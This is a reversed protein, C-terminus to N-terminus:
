YTGLMAFKRSAFPHIESVRKPSISFSSPNPSIPFSEDREGDPPTHYVEAQGSLDQSIQGTQIM